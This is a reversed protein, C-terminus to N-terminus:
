AGHGREVLLARGDLGGEGVPVECPEPREGRLLAAKDVALEALGDPADACRAESSAPQAVAERGSYWSM